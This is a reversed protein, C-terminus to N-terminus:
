AAGGPRPAEAARLLAIVEDDELQHFDEYHGGIGFPLHSERLCIIHDAESRLLAIAEPPAVPVALVIEQPRRRRLAMLGARMTAGTAIGDDVVIATCGAVDVPPRDGCYLARRRAIEALGRRRGEALDQETAGVLGLIDENIVLIPAEGNCVAGIALEPQMPAGIKRVLLLDLPARLRRAIESAVAVGGRPLALVVPRVPALEVLRDALLRGAEARSPFLVPLRPDIM